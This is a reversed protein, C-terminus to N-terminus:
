YNQAMDSMYVKCFTQLNLDWYGSAIETWVKRSGGVNPVKFEFACQVQLHQIHGIDGSGAFFLM